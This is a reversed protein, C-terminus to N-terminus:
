SATQDEDVTPKGIILTYVICSDLAWCLSPDAQANAFGLIWSTKLSVYSYSGDASRDESCAGTKLYWKVTIMLWNDGLASCELDRMLFVRRNLYVSFKVVLFHFNESLFNHYKKMNRSLVYITPVWMRHKQASILFIIYVGTFGLKVTYFHPKLPDFNYLYTKTINDCVLPTQFYACGLCQQCILYESAIHIHSKFRRPTQHQFTISSFFCIWAGTCICICFSTVYAFKRLVFRNCDTVNICTRRWADKEPVMDRFRHFYLQIFTLM